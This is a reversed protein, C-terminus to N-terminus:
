SIDGFPLLLIDFDENKLTDYIGKDNTIIAKEKVPLISCKTYGQKVNITKKDKCYDLIKKDTFNLNHILIIILLIHM